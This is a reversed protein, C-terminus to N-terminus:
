VLDGVEHTEPALMITQEASRRFDGHAVSVALDFVSANRIHEFAGPDFSKDFWSRALVRRHSAPLADFLAMAVEPTQNIVGQTADVGNTLGM